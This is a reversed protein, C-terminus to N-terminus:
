FRYGEAPDLKADHWAEPLVREIREALNISTTLCLNVVLQGKTYPPQPLEVVSRAMCNTIQCYGAVATASGPTKLNNLWEWELRPSRCLPCGV